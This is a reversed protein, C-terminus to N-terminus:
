SRSATAQCRQVTITASRLLLSGTRWIKLDPYTIMMAIATKATVVFGAFRQPRACFARQYAGVKATRVFASTRTRIEPLRAIEPDGVMHSSGLALASPPSPDTM